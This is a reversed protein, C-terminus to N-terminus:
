SNADLCPEHHQVLEVVLDALPDRGQQARFAGHDRAPRRRGEGQARGGHERALVRLLHHLQRVERVHLALDDDLLRVAEAVVVGHAVAAHPEDLDLGRLVDIARDVVLGRHHEEVVRGRGRARDGVHLEDPQALFV